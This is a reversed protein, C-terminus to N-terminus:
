IIKFSVKNIFDQKKQLMKNNKDILVNVKPIQWFHNYYNSIKLQDDKKRLLKRGKKEGEREM